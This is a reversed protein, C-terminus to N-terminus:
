IVREELWVKSLLEIELIFLLQESSLYLFLLFTTFVRHDRWSQDITLLYASQYASLSLISLCVSLCIRVDAYKWYFMTKVLAPVNDTQSVALVTHPM